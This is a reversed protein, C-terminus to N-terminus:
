RVLFRDRKQGAIWSPARGRGSWTQGTKQNHYKPPLPAAGARSLAPRGRKKPFIDQETLGYETVKARVGAIVDAVEAVRAAEAQEELVAIQKKLETYKNGAM